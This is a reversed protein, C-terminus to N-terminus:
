LKPNREFIFGCAMRLLEVIASRRYVKHYKWLSNIYSKIIAFRARWKSYNQNFVSVGDYLTDRMIQEVFDRDVIAKDCLAIGFYDVTIANLANLYRTYGSKNCWDYLKDWNINEQEAKVLMAWDLIHRLRIGETLFHGFGHITVFLANFDCCPSILQTEGIYQSNDAVLLEQLYREREKNLKSGRIATCFQHNEVMLGKYDIHSHKYFDREVKAGQEEAIVNGREYDGMLFCDLDGCERHNPVPYYQSLALGKLCVSEVGQEAWKDVLETSLKQSKEYRKEINLVANIWQLKLALPFTKAFEKDQEFIKVLGDFAVALVGQKRALAYVSQWSVGEDASPVVVRETGIAIRLLHFLTSSTLTTQM